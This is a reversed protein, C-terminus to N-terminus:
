EIQKKAPVQERQVVLQVKQAIESLEGTATEKAFGAVVGVL